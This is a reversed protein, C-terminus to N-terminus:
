VPKLSLADAECEEIALDIIKRIKINDRLKAWAIFLEGNHVTTFTPLRKECNGCNTCKKRDIKLLPM